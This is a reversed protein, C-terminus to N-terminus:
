PTISSVSRMRLNKIMASDLLDEAFGQKNLQMHNIDNHYYLNQYGLQMYPMEYSQQNYNLSSDYLPM